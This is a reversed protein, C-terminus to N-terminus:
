KQSSNTEALNGRSHSSWVVAVREGREQKWVRVCVTSKLSVVQPSNELVRSLRSKLFLILSIGKVPIGSIEMPEREKGQPQLRSDKNAFLTKPYPLLPMIGSFLAGRHIASVHAKSTLTCERHKRLWCKLFVRHLRCVRLPGAWCWFLLSLKLYSLLTLIRVLFLITNRGHARFPWLLKIRQGELGGATLSSGSIESELLSCLHPRQSGWESM